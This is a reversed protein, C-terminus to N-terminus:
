RYLAKLRGWTDTRVSVTTQVHVLGGERVPQLRHNGADRVDTWLCPIATTGARVTRFTLYVLVGPGSCNGELMAAEYWATDAPAVRDSRTQGFYARGTATLVDGADIRQLEIIAPDFASIVGFAKLDSINDITIRLVFTSGLYVTTDAPLTSVTLARAAPVVFLLSALLCAPMLWRAPHVCHEMTRNTRM